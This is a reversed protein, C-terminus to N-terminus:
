WASMSQDIPPRAAAGPRRIVPPQSGDPDIVTSGVFSHVPPTMTM